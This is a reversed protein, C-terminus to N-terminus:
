ESKQAQETQNPNSESFTDTKVVDSHLHKLVEELEKRIMVSLVTVSLGCIIYLITKVPFSGDNPFGTFPIVAIFIGLAFITSIKVM